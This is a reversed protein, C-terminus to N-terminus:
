KHSAHNKASQGRLWNLFTVDLLSNEGFDGMFYQLLTNIAAAIISMGLIAVMVMNSDRYGTAADEPWGSYLAYTTTVSGCNGLGSIIAASMAVGLDGHFRYFISAGWSMTIPVTPGLGFGCILLGGWRSWGDPAYTTVFLGVIIIATSISFILGRHQPWRDAFPTILLIGGLDFLWIPATLLSLTIGSWDPNISKLITTAYNEIGIGTGVVGFYMIVLPYIRIDFLVRLLDRWTWMQHAQARGAIERQHIRVDKETLPWISQGKPRNPLWFYLLGGIAITVVGYILFNWQYGTYGRIGDMKQFAAGLLGAVAASIQAATYYYGIRQSLMEVPYFASVYYTMGPWIGATVLGTFFRIAQIGAANKVAAICAYVLGITIIIRSLWARPTFVTFCLNMPVDFVIYGVYDLTTAISQEHPKLNLYLPISHAEEYNMTQANGWAASGYSSLFYLVWLAPIIRFDIKWYIKRLDMPSVEEDVSTVDADNKTVSNAEVTAESDFTPHRKEISKDFFFDFM